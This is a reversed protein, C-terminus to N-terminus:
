VPDADAGLVPEAPEAPTSSTPVLRTRGSERIERLRRRAAVLQVLLVAAEALLQGALAGTGGWFLAGFFIGPLGVVAGTAASTAVARVRGLSVLLVSGSSMTTCIIAISLGAIAAALQPVHVTGSYILEAAWPTLLAFLVGCILGVGASVMTARVAREIRRVPDTERGVWGKFFFNQARMVQQLMRQLRDVSAFLLTANVSGLTAITTGLSIYVSSFVSSSLAHRQFGIVRLLRRPGLSVLDRMRLRLVVAAAVPAAVASVLLAAPYSWLPGGLHIAIASVAILLARPLVETYLFLRPKLIGIFIWSGSFMAIAAAGAVGATLAAYGRPALLASLVVALGIVPVGVIAKTVLSVGYAHARNRESMRAVRQSGSLGWGLEVVVGATGGLSQGVAIAAWAASGFSATIAPLALLPSVANLLPAALYSVLVGAIFRVRAATFRRTRAPTSTM